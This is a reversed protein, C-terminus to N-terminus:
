PHQTEERQLKKLVDFMPKISPVDGWLARPIGIADWSRVISDVPLDKIAGALLAYLHSLIRKRGPKQTHFYDGKKQFYKLWGYVTHYGLKHEREDGRQHRRLAGAVGHQRAGDTITKIYEDKWNHRPASLGPRAQYADVVVTPVIHGDMVFASWM